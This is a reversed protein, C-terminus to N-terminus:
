FLGALLLTCQLLLGLLAFYILCRTGNWREAYTKDKIQRGFLYYLAFDFHSVSMNKDYLIEFLFKDLYVRWACIQTALFVAVVLIIRLLDSKLNSLFSLVCVVASVFAIWKGFGCVAVIVRGATQSQLIKETKEAM